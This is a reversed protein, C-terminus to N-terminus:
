KQTFKLVLWHRRSVRLAVKNKGHIVQKAYPKIEELISTDNGTFEVKLPLHSVKFINGKLQYYEAWPGVLQFGREELIKLVEKPIVDSLKLM